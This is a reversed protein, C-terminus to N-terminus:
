LFSYEQIVAPNGGKEYGHSELLKGPNKLDFNLNELLIIQQKLPITIM